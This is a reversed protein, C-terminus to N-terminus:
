RAHTHQCAGVIAEAANLRLRCESLLTLEAATGGLRLGTSASCDRSTHSFFFTSWPHRVGREFPIQNPKDAELCRIRSRESPPTTARGRLRLWVVAALPSAGVAVEIFRKCVV